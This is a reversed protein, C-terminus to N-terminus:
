IKDLKLKQVAGSLGPQKQLLVRLPIDAVYSKFRGKDEFRSRCESNNIFDLIKPSIGGGIYVGGKAGTILALNGATAGLVRCFVSLAEVAMDDTGDMAAATIDRAASHVITASELKCLSQYINIIGAGSLLREVSVHNFRTKLENLIAIEQDTAPAFDIHGGEGDLIMFSRGVPALTCMGLGTGPGLIAMPGHPRAEGGGLQFWEHSKVATLSYAIASFDNIVTLPVHDLEAALETKSFTWHSNTFRILDDDVPCAVALCVAEPKDARHDAQNFQSIVHQLAVIFFPYEAVSLVIVESLKDKDIDHVAFRANTGGIDAVLNWAKQEPM